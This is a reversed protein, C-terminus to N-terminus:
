KLLTKQEGLEEPTGCTGHAAAVKSQGSLVATAVPTERRGDQPAELGAATKFSHGLTDWFLCKVLKQALWTTAQRYNCHEPPQPLLELDRHVVYTHGWTLLLCPQPSSYFAEWALMLVQIKDGFAM